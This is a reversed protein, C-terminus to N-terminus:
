DAQEKFSFTLLEGHLLEKIENVGDSVTILIRTNDHIAKLSEAAQRCSNITEVM